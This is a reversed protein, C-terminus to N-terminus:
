KIPYGPTVTVPQVLTDNHASIEAIDSQPLSGSAIAADILKTTSGNVSTAIATLQKNATVQKGGLIGTAVALNAGTVMLTIIAQPDKDMVVLLVTGAITVMAIVSVAIIIIPNRM